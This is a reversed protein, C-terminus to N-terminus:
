EVFREGRLPFDRIAIFRVNVHLGIFEERCVKAEATALKLFISFIGALNLQM